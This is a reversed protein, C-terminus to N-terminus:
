AAKQNNTTEVIGFEFETLYKYADDLPKANMKLSSGEFLDKVELTLETANTFRKFVEGHFRFNDVRNCILKNDYITADFNREYFWILPNHAVSVYTTEKLSDLERSFRVSSEEAYSAIYSRLLATYISDAPVLKFYRDVDNLFNARESNIYDRSEIPKLILEDCTRILNCLATRAVHRQRKISICFAPIKFNTEYESRSKLEEFRGYCDNNVYIDMGDINIKFNHPVKYCLKTLLSDKTLEALRGRM